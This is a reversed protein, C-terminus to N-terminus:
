KYKRNKKIIVAGGKKEIRDFVITTKSELKPILVQSKYSGNYSASYGAIVKEGLAKEKVASIFEKVVRFNVDAELLATRVGKLTEEINTETIRAEGKLHKFASTLKESLSDFM